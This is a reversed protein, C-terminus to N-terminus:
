ISRLKSRHIFKHNCFKKKGEDDDDEEEEEDDDEEDDDEEDDESDDEEDDESDDEELEIMAKAGKKADRSAAKKPAPAPSCFNM